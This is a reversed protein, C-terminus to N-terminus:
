HKTCSKSRPVPSIPILTRWVRGDWNGLEGFFENLLSGIGRVYHTDEQGCQYCFDGQLDTKCNLCQRQPTGSDNLETTTKAPPISTNM